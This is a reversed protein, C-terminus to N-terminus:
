RCKSASIVNGSEAWEKIANVEKERKLYDFMMQDIFSRGGSPAVIEASDNYVETLDYGESETIETLPTENINESDIVQTLEDLNPIQAM